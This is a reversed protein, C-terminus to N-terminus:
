AVGADVKLARTSHMHFYITHASTSLLDACTPLLVAAWRSAYSAMSRETCGQAVLAANKSMILPGVGTQTLLMFGLEKNEIM